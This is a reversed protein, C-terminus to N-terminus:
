SKYVATLTGAATAESNLRALLSASQQGKNINLRSPLAYLRFVFGQSGKRSPCIPIREGGTEYEGVLAGHPLKGAQLEHLSPKLGVILAQSLLRATTGTSSPKLDTYRAMYLVLEQTKGPVVGWRVPLWIKNVNCKYRAPIVKKATLVPSQFAIEPTNNANPKTSGGCGPIAIALLLVCLLFSKRNKM